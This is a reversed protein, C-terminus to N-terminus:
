ENATQLGDIAFEVLRVGSWDPAVEYCGSFRVKRVGFWRRYAGEIVVEASGELRYRQWGPVPECKAIELVSAHYTDIERKPTGPMHPQAAEWRASVPSQSTVWRRLRARVDIEARAGVLQDVARALRAPDPIEPQLEAVTARARELVASENALAELALQEMQESPRRRHRRQMEDNAGAEGVLVGSFLGVLALVGVWRRIANM